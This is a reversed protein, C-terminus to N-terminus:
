QVLFPPSGLSLHQLTTSAVTEATREAYADDVAVRLSNRSSRRTGNDYQCWQM